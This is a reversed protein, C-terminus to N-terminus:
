SSASFSFHKAVISGTRLCDAIRADVVDDSLM